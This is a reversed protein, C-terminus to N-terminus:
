KIAGKYHKVYEKTPNVIKCIMLKEKDVQYYGQRECAIWSPEHFFSIVFFVVFTFVMGLFFGIGESM